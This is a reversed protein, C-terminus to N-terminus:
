LRLRLFEDSDPAVETAHPCAEQCYLSRQPFHGADRCDVLESAVLIRCECPKDTVNALAILVEM